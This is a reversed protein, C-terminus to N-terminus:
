PDARSDPASLPARQFLADRADAPLIVTLARPAVSFSMPLTGIVEGDVQVPVPWSAELRIMRAQAYRIKPTFKVRRLVAWLLVGLRQLVSTSEVVVLDLLGDDAIANKAFTLAGGYLRTNGIIIMLANVSRRKGSYRMWVRTPRQIVSLMGATALYDLMKLGLRKLPGRDVRRAVEADFGIGAMLLFYRSGARGLDIQRRVGHALAERAHDLNRPIGVERAWVNVTGMPLVGLATSTGALAQIVDNVTGDGGAAVVVDMGARVAERALQTAHGPRETLKLETPIDHEELWDVTDQLEAIGINGRMTGSIPNAIIRVRPATQLRSRQAQRPRVKLLAPPLVYYALKFSTRTRRITTRAVTLLHETRKQWELLRLALVGTRALRRTRAEGLIARWRRLWTPLQRAPKQSQEDM